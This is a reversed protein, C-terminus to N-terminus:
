PESSSASSPKYTSPGAAEDELPVAMSDRFRSWSTGDHRHRIAATDRLRFASRAASLFQTRAIRTSVLAQRFEAQPSEAFYTDIINHDAEHLDEAAIVVRSPALLRLRTLTDTELDHAEVIELRLEQIASEAEPTLFILKRCSSRLKFSTDFFSVLAEVLAERAWRDLERRGAVWLNAASLIAALGAAAATVAGVATV